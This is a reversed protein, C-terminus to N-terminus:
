DTGRRKTQQWTRFTRGRVRASLLRSAQNVSIPLDSAAPALVRSEVVQIEYGGPAKENEAVTGNVSIVSELSFDPKGDYVLQMLGSRDRLVVFAVAGLERIRHVWGSAEVQEGAHSSLERALVRM